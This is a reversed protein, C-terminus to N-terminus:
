KLSVIISGDRSSAALCARLTQESVALALAPYNVLLTLLQRATSALEGTVLSMDVKNCEICALTFDNMECLLEVYNARVEASNVIALSERYRCASQKNDGGKSYLWAARALFTAMWAEMLEAQTSDQSAIIRARECLEGIQSARQCPKDSSQSDSSLLSVALFNEWLEEPAFM